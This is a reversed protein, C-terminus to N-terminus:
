PELPFVAPCFLARSLIFICGSRMPLAPLINGPQTQPTVHSARSGRESLVATSCRQCERPTTTADRMWRQLFALLDATCSDSNPAVCEKSSIRQLIESCLRQVQADTPWRPRPFESLTEEGGNAWLPAFTADGNCVGRRLPARQSELKGAGRGSAWWRRQPASPANKCIPAVM